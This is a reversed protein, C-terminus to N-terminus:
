KKQHRMMVPVSMAGFGLSILTMGFVKFTVWADTSLNRWAIENAVAMTVFMAVWLWSLKTWGIDSLDIQKGLIMGLPNKGYLRGGALGAALILSFVTPKIKIFLESDFYVSLGGFLSVAACGAIAMGSVRREIVYSAVLAVVTTGVLLKVAFILDGYLYNAVFFVLLPGFDLVMRLASADSGAPKADGGKHANQNRM